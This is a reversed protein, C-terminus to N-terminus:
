ARDITIITHRIHLLLWSRSARSRAFLLGVHLRPTWSPSSSDLIAVLLGLHRRSTWSPLSSDLIAVPLGVHLRATWCPSPYDLIFVPLGLHRRPTWCPSPYDLMSVPLGLHRLPIWCLLDLICYNYYIKGSIHTAARDLFRVCAREPHSKDARLHLVSQPSLCLVLGLWRTFKGGLDEGVHV